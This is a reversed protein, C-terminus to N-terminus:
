GKRDQAHYSQQGRRQNSYPPPSPSAEVALNERNLLGGQQYDLQQPERQEKIRLPANENQQYGGQQSPYNNQVPYNDRRYSANNASETLRAARDKDQNEKLAKAVYIGGGLLMAKSILGM